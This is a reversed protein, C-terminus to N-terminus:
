AECLNGTKEKIRFKAKTVSGPSIGYFVALQGTTFGLLTLCSIEKDRDTLQPANEIVQMEEPYLRAALTKLATWEQKTKVCQYGPRSKIRELIALAKINTESMLEAMQKDLQKEKNALAERLQEQRSYEQEMQVAKAKESEAIAKFRATEMREGQLQRDLHLQRDHYQREKRKKSRYTLCMLILALSGASASGARHLINKRHEEAKAMAKRSELTRNMWQLLVERERVDKKSPFDKQERTPQCAIGKIRKAINDFYEATDPRNMQRYDDALCSAAEARLHRCGNQKAMDLGKRHYETAKEPLGCDSLLNGLRCYVTAALGATDPCQPEQLLDLADWYCILAQEPKDQLECFRAQQLLTDTKERNESFQQEPSLRCSSFICAFLMVLCNLHLLIRM